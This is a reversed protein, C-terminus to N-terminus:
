ESEKSEEVKKIFREAAQQIRPTIKIELDKDREYLIELIMRVGDGPDVVNGGNIIYNLIGELEPTSKRELYGRISHDETYM